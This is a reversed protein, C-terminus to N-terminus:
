TDGVVTFSQADASVTLQQSGAVTTAANDVVAVFPPRLRTRVPLSLWSGLDIFFNRILKRFLRVPQIDLIPSAKFPLPPAPDNLPSVIRRWVRATFGQVDPLGTGTKVGLQPPVEAPASM